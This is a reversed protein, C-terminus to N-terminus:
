RYIIGRLVELIDVVIFFYALLLIEENIEDDDTYEIIDCYREANKLIDNIEM